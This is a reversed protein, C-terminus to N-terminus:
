LPRTQIMCELSLKTMNVTRDVQPLLAKGSGAEATAIETVAPPAAEEPAALQAPCRAEHFRRAVSLGHLGFLGSRGCHRCFARQSPRIKVAIGKSDEEKDEFLQLIM